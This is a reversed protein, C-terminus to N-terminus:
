DAAFPPSLVAQKPAEFKILILKTRNQKWKNTNMKIRDLDWIAAAKWSPHQHVLPMSTNAAYTPDIHILLLKM